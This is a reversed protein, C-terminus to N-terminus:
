HSDRYWHMIAAERLMSEEQGVPLWNEHSAAANVLFDIWTLHSRLVRKHRHPALPNFLGDLRLLQRPRKRIWRWSGMELTLPLFVGSNERNIEKYFYDWLDGHTLYHRSQPEFRYDHNPYAKEWTLKLAMMSEIRRMPRRRYAYPFWIQDQWGFGSHCDLAVSFPRGPLLERIVSELVQNEPEMGQEPDGTYWPLKSSLRQGGLMFASRDQATIPANRMLDVGQPNSRQNLYMGGPNLIPLVTIRVKKLLQRLSEDWRTRALVSELWAMVVQSGIRELGHVGGVLLVAPVDPSSSGIDARYIPLSLGRLPIRGVVSATVLEPAEALIRELQVMEPLFSRLLRRQSSDRTAQEAPIAAHPTLTRLEAM